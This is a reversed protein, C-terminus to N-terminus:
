LHQSIDTKAQAELLSRNWGAVARLTIKDLLSVVKDRRPLAALGRTRSIRRKTELLWVIRQLGYAMEARSIDLQVKNASAADSELASLWFSAISELRTM